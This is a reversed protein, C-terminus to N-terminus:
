EHLDERNFRENKLSFGKEMYSLLRERALSQEESLEDEASIPIVKAIPKGRRTLILKDGREVLKIYDSFHQNMERLTLQQIM